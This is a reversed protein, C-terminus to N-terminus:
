GPMDIDFEAWVPQHDSGDAGTDIWGRRINRALDASAFIHDLRQPPEGGNGPFTVGEDDRMGALRLVDAFRGHLAKREAAVRALEPSPPASNFDGLLIAPMPMQPFRGDPLVM